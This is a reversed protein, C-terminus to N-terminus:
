RYRRLAANLKDLCDQGVYAIEDAHHIAGAAFIRGAEYHRAMLTNEDSNRMRMNIIKIVRRIAEPDNERIADRTMARMNATSIATVPIHWLNSAITTVPELISGVTVLTNIAVRDFSEFASDFDDYFDMEELASEVAMNIEYQNM